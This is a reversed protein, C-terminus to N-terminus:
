SRSNTGRFSGARSFRELRRRAELVTSEVGRDQTTLRREDLLARVIDAALGRPVRDELEASLTTTVAVSVLGYASTMSACLATRGLLYSSL